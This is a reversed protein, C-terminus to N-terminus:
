LLYPDSGRLSSTWNDMQSMGASPHGQAMDWRLARRTTALREREALTLPLIFFSPSIDGEVNEAAQAKHLVLSRRVFTDSARALGIIRTVSSRPCSCHNVHAVSGDCM